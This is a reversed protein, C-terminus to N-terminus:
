ILNFEKLFYIVPFSIGIVGIIKLLIKILLKSDIEALIWFMSQIMAIIMVTIIMIKM